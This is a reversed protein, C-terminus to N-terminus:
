PVGLIWPPQSRGDQFDVHRWKKQLPDDLKFLINSVPTSHCTSQPSTTSISVLHVIGTHCINPCIWHCTMRSGSIVNCPAAVQHIWRWSELAVHWMAPHLFETRWTSFPAKGYKIKKQKKHLKPKFLCRSKYRRRYVQQKLKPISRTTMCHFTLTSSNCCGTLTFEASLDSLTM